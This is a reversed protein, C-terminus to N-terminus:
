HLSFNKLVHCSLNFQLWGLFSKKACTLANVVLTILDLQNLHTPNYCAHSRHSGLLMSRLEEQSFPLWFFGRGKISSSLENCHDYSGAM